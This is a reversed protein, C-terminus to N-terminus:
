LSIVEEMQRRLTDESVVGVTKKVVQGNKFYLLTPISAIEYQAAIAGHQDVNVKGVVFRDDYEKALAEVMPSIQRCPGCWAAWFDVLVPQESNLVLTEFNATTLEVTHHEGVATAANQEAQSASGMETTPECGTLMATLFALGTFLARQEKMLNGKQLPVVKLLHFPASTSSTGTRQDMSEQALRRALSIMAWDFGRSRCDFTHMTNNLQEPFRNLM